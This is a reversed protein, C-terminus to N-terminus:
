TPKVLNSSIPDVLTLYRIHPLVLTADLLQLVRHPPEDSKLRLTLDEYLSPATIQNWQRNVQSLARLTEWSM